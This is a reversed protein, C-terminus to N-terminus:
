AAPLHLMKGCYGWSKAIWEVCCHFPSIRSLQKASFVRQSKQEAGPQEEAWRLCHGGCSIPQAALVGKERPLAGHKCSQECLDHLQGSVIIGMHVWCFAKIQTTSMIVVLYKM